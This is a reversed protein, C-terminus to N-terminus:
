KMNLIQMNQSEWLEESEPRFTENTSMTIQYERKKEIKKIILKLFDCFLWLLKWFILATKM